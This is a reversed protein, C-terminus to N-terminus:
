KRLTKHYNRLVKTIKNTIKSGILDGTAERSTLITRKQATKFTDTAFQIAHDLFDQSYRSSLNSGINKGIYKSINKAFSWFGM